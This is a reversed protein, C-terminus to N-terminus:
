KESVSFVLKEATKPKGIRIINGQQLNGDLLLNCLEDEVYRQVARKLPRAGFQVDYGKEAVFEKAKDSIRLRFGLESVRSHLDRLEIDIIKKISDLSLQEFMVIEDLRNLFEPAFQRRLAKEIISRAYDGNITGDSSSSGFGIGRSFDKLQRTGANSTMIVITNRFDVLRGNGDTLRGEDLVQLLLNFINQHAKEIEDLLVVSYPHRRVRETLQGGEDYGVYGPPAGVLRSTNFSENFESMDVRILSETSGFVEQALQRALYTKGVGTPGLFLFVGIPRAHARLGLSNRRIARVCTDVASDQGIVSSKLIDSLRRLRTNGDESVRSVPVGSILSVVECVDDETVTVYDSTNDDDGYVQIQQLRRGLEEQRDRLAAALEFNQQVVAVKKKQRVDELEAELRKQRPSIVATRLHVRAGVEDLADIAKDPFVRDTIYRQTQVVCARLAEATYMVHHHQQYRAKINELITMTEEPSTPNVIIKQFRRELAGDKEISKRYEDLTTAGICQVMGRALAPKLINAADMTGSASGAGMLTHIEDIFVIVDHSKELDSIIGKMRKEFDGRFQTGAVVGTLDLSLVRKGRLVPSATGDAIQQALGEVIASKGVGPDGILVPNNKKRRGLIETLRYIEKDRGVVPDLRHEAAAQTLDHSYKDLFPTKTDDPREMVLTGEVQGRHVANSLSNHLARSAQQFMERMEKAMEESPDKGEDDREDDISDFEKDIM